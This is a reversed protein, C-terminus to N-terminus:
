LPLPSSPPSPPTEHPGFPFLRQKALPARDGVVHYSQLTWSVPSDEGESGRQEEGEEDEEEKEEKEEAAGAGKEKEEMGEEGGAGGGGGDKARYNGADAHAFLAEAYDEFFAVSM